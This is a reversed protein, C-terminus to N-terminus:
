FHNGHRLPMVPAFSMSCIPLTPSAWRGGKPLPEPPRAFLTGLTTWSDLIITCEAPPLGNRLSVGYHAVCSGSPRTSRQSLQRKHSQAPDANNLNKAGLSNTAMARTNELVSTLM